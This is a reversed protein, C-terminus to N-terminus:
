IGEVVRDYDTEDKKKLSDVCAQLEGITQEYEDQRNIYAQLESKAEESLQKAERLAEQSAKLLPCIETVSINLRDNQLQKSLCLYRNSIEINTYSVSKCIVDYIYAGM